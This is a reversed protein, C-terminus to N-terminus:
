INKDGLAPGISTLYFHLVFLLINVEHRGFEGPHTKGVKVNIRSEGVIGFM